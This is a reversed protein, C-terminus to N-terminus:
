SIKKVLYFRSISLRFQVIAFVFLATILMWVFNSNKQIIVKSLRGESWLLASFALASAILFFFRSFLKVSKM